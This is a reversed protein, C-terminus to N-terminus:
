PQTALYHELSPSTLLGADIATLLLGHKLMIDQLQQVLVPFQPHEGLLFNRNWERDPLVIDDLSKLFREPSTQLRKAILKSAQEPQSKMYAVAQFWGDILTKVAQDHAKLASEHIVLVDIIENPLAKSDLLVHAGAAQLKSKVPEFTVLADIDHQLYAQEHQDFPIFRTEIDATSLRSKDLARTLVYAGLAMNELGIRKGRLDALQQLPTHALLADAGNSIDMVLLVKIALQDQLLLLAEDLTLAVVDIYGNRFARINASASSLEYVHILKENYFGLQDALHLAEYGPWEHSAVRLPQDTSDNCAWLVMCSLCFALIRAIAFLHRMILMENKLLSM